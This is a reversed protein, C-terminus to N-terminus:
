WVDLEGVIEEVVDKITVIGTHKGAKNSVVAMVRRNRQMEYLAETVPLDEALVLPPTMCQAPTRDAGAPLVDYLDVVGVAQGHDDMLPVRWHNQARLLEILEVRWVGVPAKVVRPMAIMVDGLVKEEIHMIRDAMVAQQHTLVGSAQGEAVLTPLLDHTLLTHRPSRPTRGVLKMLMWSFGRVLGALGLANFIVHSGWLFLSLRYTLADGFRQAVSKPVSSDLVFLVLTAVVLTVWQANEFGAMVFMASIAFTALYESANSGILLVALVNNMNHLLKRLRGARVDGAEANLDLRMRNLMYVGTELAAFLAGLLIALLLSIWMAVWTSTSVALLSPWEFPCLISFPATM